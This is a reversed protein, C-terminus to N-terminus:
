RHAFCAGTIHRELEPKSRTSIMILTLWGVPMFDLSCAREDGRRLHRLRVRLGVATALPRSDRALMSGVYLPCSAVAFLRFPKHM